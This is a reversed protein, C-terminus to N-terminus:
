KKPKATKSATSSKSKAKSAAPKKKTAPKKAPTKAKPKPKSSTPTPKKEEVPKEVEVQKEVEVPENELAEAEELMQLMDLSEATFQDLEEEVPEEKEPVEIEVKNPEEQESVEEIVAADEITAVVPEEEIQEEEVTEVTDDVESVKDDEEIDDDTGIFDRIADAMDIEPKKFDVPAAPADQAQSEIEKIQEPTLVTSEITESKRAQKIKMARRIKALTDEISNAPQEVVKIGAAKNSSKYPENELSTHEDFEDEMQEIRDKWNKYYDKQDNIIQNEKIKMYAQAANVNHNMGTIVNPVGTEWTGNAPREVVGSGYKQNPRYSNFSRFYDGWDDIMNVRTTTPGSSLPVNKKKNTM